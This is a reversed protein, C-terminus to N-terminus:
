GGVIEIAPGWVVLHGEIGESAPDDEASRDFADADGRGLDHDLLGVAEDAAEGVAGRVLEGFPDVVEVGSEADVFEVGASVVPGHVIGGAVFESPAFEAFDAGEGGYHALLEERGAEM